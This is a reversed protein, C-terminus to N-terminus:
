DSTLDIVENQSARSSESVHRKQPIITTFHKRPIFISPPARRRQRSGNTYRNRDYSSSEKEQNQNTDASTQQHNTSTSNEAHTTSINSYEENTDAGEEPLPVDSNEYNLSSEVGNAFLPFRFQTPLSVSPNNSDSHNTNSDGNPVLTRSPSPSTNNRNVNPEANVNTRSGDLTQGYGLLTDHNNNKQTSNTTVDVTRQEPSVAQAIAFNYPNNNNVDPSVNVNNSLLNNRSLPATVSPSDLLPYSEARELEGNQQGAEQEQEQEEDSSDLSIVVPESPRNSFSVSESKVKEPDAGDQSLSSIVPKQEEGDSLNVDEEHLVKWTGDVNIEVQENDESTSNIIEEIFECLALDQLDINRQCVPCAWTPVQNQSELFWQADFCQLHKCYISRSPYKMRSYSIPCQLSLIMSTTVMDEDEDEKLMEKLLKLTSAKTIKPKNAIQQQVIDLPTIIEVIYLCMVFDVSTCAYIVSLVNQRATSLFTFPTVNAPKATGPKSKFGRINDKIVNNNMKIELPHPFKIEADSKNPNSAEASYMFLQFKERQLLLSVEEQSLFIKAQVTGRGHLNKRANLISNQILRKPKYFPAKKFIINLGNPPTAPHTGKPQHTNLSRKSHVTATTGNGSQLESSTSPILSDLNQGNVLAQHIVNYSPTVTDGLRARRTLFKVVHIRHQDMPVSTLSNNLFGVIRDRIDAKRGGVPLSCGKAVVKLETVKLQDLQLVTDTLLGSMYSLSTPTNAM